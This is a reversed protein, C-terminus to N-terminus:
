PTGVGVDRCFPQEEPHPKRAQMRGYCLHVAFNRDCQAGPVDKMRRCAAVRSRSAGKVQEAREQAAKGAIHRQREASTDASSDRMPLRDTM